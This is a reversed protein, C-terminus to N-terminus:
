QVTWSLSIGANFNQFNKYEKGFVTYSNTNFDYGVKVALALPTNQIPFRLGIEPNLRFAWDQDYADLDQVLTETTIYNVGIGLGVYPEVSGANFHYYGGIQIPATVLYNYSAATVARGGGLQYTQRDTNEHYSNYGFKFGISFADTLFINGSFFGGRLSTNSIYDSFDGLPMGIEWGINYYQKTQAQLGTTLGLFALLMVALIKKM